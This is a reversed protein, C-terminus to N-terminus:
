RDISTTKEKEERKVAVYANKKTIDYSEKQCIQHHCTFLSGNREIFYNSVRIQAVPRALNNSNARVFEKTIKDLGNYNNLRQVKRVTILKATPASAHMNLPQGLLVNIITEIGSLQVSVEAIPPQPLSTISSLPCM